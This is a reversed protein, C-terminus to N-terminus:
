LRSEQLSAVLDDIVSSINDACLTKCVCIIWVRNRMQPVGFHHPSTKWHHVTYGYENCTAVLAMMNDSSGFGVVNELAVLAPHWRRMYDFIGPPPMRTQTRSRSQRM